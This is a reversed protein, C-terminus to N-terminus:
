LPTNIIVSNIIKSKTKRASLTGIYIDIPKADKIETNINLSIMGITKIWLINEPKSAIENIASGNKTRAALIISPPPKDFLINLKERASTPCKAPPIANVECTALINKPEKDPDLGAVTIAIPLIIYGSSIFPPYLLDNEPPSSAEDPATESTIGGLIVNIINAATVPTDT